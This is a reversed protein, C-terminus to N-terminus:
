IKIDYVDAREKIEDLTPYGQINKRKLIQKINNLIPHKILLLDNKNKLYFLSIFTLNRINKEKQTINLSHKFIEQKSLVNKPLYYYNTTLLLKIGHKEYASFGTLMADLDAKNSFVIEHQNKHYIISNSPVRPDITEEYTKYEVLFDKLEKWIKENIVYKHKEKPIVASINIAQKIKKYIISKKLCTDSEIEEVTKPHLLEGLILIGAGSLLSVINPHKLLLQLLLNTHTTKKPTLVSQSFEIFNKEILKNKTRYIRSYDRELAEAIKKIDTNGNAIQQLIKLETESLQMYEMIDCIM